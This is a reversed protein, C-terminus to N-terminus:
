GFGPSALSEEFSLRYLDRWGWCPPGTWAATRAAVVELEPVTLM